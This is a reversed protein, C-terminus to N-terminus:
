DSSDGQSQDSALRGPRRQEPFPTRRGLSARSLLQAGSGIARPAWDNQEGWFLDEPYPGRTCLVLLISFSKTSSARLMGLAAQYLSIECTKMLRLVTKM